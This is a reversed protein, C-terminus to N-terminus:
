VAIKRQERVNKFNKVLIETIKGRGIAKSNIVRKAKLREIYFNKYLDDFFNDNPNTNKPDSNSLMVFAGKNAVSEVFEALKIQCVDDFCDKQYNFSQQTIPRYPPDFYIFTKNGIFKECEQYYGYIIEVKQLLQSVLSLNEKDCILPKKYKGFPVNFEGNTNVRYLGNFCTKNLFIFNVAKEYDCTNGLKKKNYKNRIKMFYDCQQQSNLLYFKTEIYKLKSIIINVDEKICKYCNILEKNLDIIIARKIEYKQLIDFLVAGGGVFPEIYTDIEGNLLEYPYIHAFKDLLQGKGGAWKLFPKANGKRNMKKLRSKNKRKTLIKRSIM